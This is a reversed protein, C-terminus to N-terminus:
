EEGTSENTVGRPLRGDAYALRRYKWGALDHDYQLGTEGAGGCTPCTDRGILRGAVYIPIQGEGGCDWCCEVPAARLAESSPEERRLEDVASM